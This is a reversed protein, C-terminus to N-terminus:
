TFTFDTESISGSYDVLRIELASGPYDLPDADHHDSVFRIVTDDGDRKYGYQFEDLTDFDSVEGAFDPTAGHLNEAIHIVLRDGEARNYDQIVPREGSPEYSGWDTSFGYIANSTQFRDAGAGGIMETTGGTGAILTDNGTGGDLLDAWPEYDSGDLNAAGNSVLLDNGANGHLNDQYQGREPGDWWGGLVTDNGAGAHVENSGDGVTILNAAANGQVTDDGGYATVNEISVLRDTSANPVGLRLTGAALDVRADLVGPSGSPWDDYEM